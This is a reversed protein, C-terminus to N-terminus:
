FKMQLSQEIFKQYKGLDPNNKLAELNAPSIISFSYRESKLWPVIETASLPKARQVYDIAQQANAFGSILLLRNDADLQVLQSSLRAAANRELNYRNFANRAENAFVNDVKNLAILVYHPVGADHNYLASPVKPLPKAAVTDKKVAPPVVPPTPLAATPPKSTVTDKPLVAVDKKVTATDRQIATTDKRPLPPATVVATTDKKPEPKPQAVVVTDKPLAPVDTKAVSDKPIAPAKIAPPEPKRTATDPRAIAVDKKQATDVKPTKVLATSDVAPETPTPKFLNANNVVLSPMNKKRALKDTAKVVPPKQASPTKAVTTRLRKVSPLAVETSDPKPEPAKTIVPAPAAAATDEVPKELQLNTLEDEIQKRRGLVQVLHAAKAALPTNPSQQQLLNLRNIATSDERQKIYYVSEIYLLQPSWYNTRYTSDAVRKGAVAEEFKGELFMDYIGEYTKTVETTPRIDEPDNGTTLIAAQRSTPYTQLLLRKMEAAKATQGTKEYGLYLGFLVESMGFYDPFRKRLEEYVELASTYDELENLFVRGQALLANRIQENSAAVAETTLPLGALLGDYSIANVIAPEAGPVPNGRTNEPVNDRLKTMVDSARRWNDENPRTGWLQKFTAAGQTKLTPNYFYWEGKAPARFLDGEGADQLRNVGGSVTVTTDDKLGRQRRLQRALKKLFDTREAEPLAAIRQLSDQKTVTAIGSVVKGLSEKRGTVRDAEEKKLNDTQVSDYYSAAPVYKREAFLMDALQLYSRNRSAVNNLNYKASKLLYERAAETNHREMEMQAAMYYIIDRYNAFREKRAMKLLEAINQNIYDDGGAKNIRILNLRAYIDMIPDLTHSIARAYYIEAQDPKGGKEYLQAILYEWRSRERKTQANELAESLHAAASDWQQQKYFWLAQVEHLSPQLREPFNPDKKLTAILSGAEPLAGSEILTRTQWIFATNRSPPDSIMRKLRSQDEKTAISLATNGDMHSGIYRYYGDKEKEAFAYNIFQFMQYASDFQQQLFYAAGWLLYMDDIWDNRLDHMLIGTKSKYIISDLETKSQTTTELSYNYFPLLEAYDDKHAEKASEIVTNLKNNANFFYNYHTYTNQFFRRPATFKKKGSKEAKLLRNEYPEPKKIELDYGLQAKLPSLGLCFLLLCIATRTYRYKQM